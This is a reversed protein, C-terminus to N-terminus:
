GRCNRSFLRRFVRRRHGKAGPNLRSLGVSVPASREGLFRRCRGPLGSRACACEVGNGAGLDLRLEAPERRSGTEGCRARFSPRFGHVAGDVTDNRPLAPSGSGTMVKGWRGSVPPRLERGDQFEGAVGHVRGFAPTAAGAGDQWLCSRGLNSEPSWGGETPCKPGMGLPLRRSDGMRPRTPWITPGEPEARHGAGRWHTSQSRHSSSDVLINRGPLLTPLSRAPDGRRHGNVTASGFVCSPVALLQGAIHQGELGILVLCRLADGAGVGGTQRESFLPKRLQQVQQALRSRCPKREPSRRERRRDKRDVGRFHSDEEQSRACGGTCPREFSCTEKGSGIRGQTPFWTGLRRENREPDATSAM